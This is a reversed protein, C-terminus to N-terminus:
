RSEAAIGMRRRLLVSSVAATLGFLVHDLATILDRSQEFWPFTFPAILGFNLGYIALGAAAGLLASSPLASGRVLRDILRGYLMALPFHILLAIVAVTVSVESPPPATDPGMLIAAIRQMPEWGEGGRVTAAFGMQAILYASGAILGCLLGPSAPHEVPEPPQARARELHTRM